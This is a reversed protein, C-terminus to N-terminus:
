RERERESEKEREPPNEKEREKPRRDEDDDDDTTIPPVPTPPAGLRASPTASPVASASDLREAEPQSSPKKCSAFLLATTIVLATRLM